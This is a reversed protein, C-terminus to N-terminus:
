RVMTRSNRAVTAIEAEAKIEAEATISHDAINLQSGFGALRRWEAARRM